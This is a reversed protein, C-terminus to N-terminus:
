HDRPVTRGRQLEFAQYKQAVRVDSYEGDVTDEISRGDLGRIDGIAGGWLHREWATGVFPLLYADLIGKGPSAIEASLAVLYGAKQTRHWEICFGARHCLESHIILMTRGNGDLFPHGYAFWGMVEGPRQRLAAKDQGIRLGEEVARRADLPHSFVTDAKSVAINPTTVARDQRAWPYFAAFLIRHVELFDAYALTRRKALYGLADDLGARFLAHELERVIEPDKEGYRNRLYGAQDYDKFPDFM